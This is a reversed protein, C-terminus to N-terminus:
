GKLYSIFRFGFSNDIDDALGSDPDHQTKSKKFKARKGSHCCLRLKSFLLFLSFGSFQFEFTEADQM